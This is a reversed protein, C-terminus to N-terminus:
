NILLIVSVADVLQRWNAKDFLYFFLSFKHASFFYFFSIVSANVLEECM